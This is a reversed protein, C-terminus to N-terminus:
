GPIVVEMTFDMGKTPKTSDTMAIEPKLVLQLCPIPNARAGAPVDRSESVMVVENFVKM